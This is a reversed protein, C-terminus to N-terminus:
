HWEGKDQRLRWFSRGAEPKEISWEIREVSM